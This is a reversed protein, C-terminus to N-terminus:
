EGIVQSEKLEEYKTIYRDAKENQGSKAASVGAKILYDLNSGDFAVLEEFDVLADEYQEAYFYSLARVYAAKEWIPDEQNAVNALVITTAEISPGYQNAQYFGVAINFLNVVAEPALEIAKRSHELASANDGAEFDLDALKLHADAIVSPEMSEVMLVHELTSRLDVRLTELMTTDPADAEREQQLRRELADWYYMYAQNKEPDQEIARQFSGIADDLQGLKTDTFGLNLLADVNRPNIQNAKRFEAAASEFDPTAPAAPSLFAVGANFHRAYYDRVQKEANEAHKKIKKDDKREILWNYSEWAEAYREQEALCWAGFFRAEPDEPYLKIAEECYPGAQEFDKQVKVYYKCNALPDAQGLAASPVLMAALV